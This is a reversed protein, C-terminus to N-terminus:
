FCQVIELILPLPCGEFNLIISLERFNFIISSGGLNFM